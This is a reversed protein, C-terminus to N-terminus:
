CYVCVLYKICFNMKKIVQIRQRMSMSILDLPTVSLSLAVNLM